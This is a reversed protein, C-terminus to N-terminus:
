LFDVEKDAGGQRWNFADEVVPLNELSVGKSCVKNAGRFVRECKDVVVYVFGHQKHQAFAVRAYSGFDEGLVYVSLQLEVQFPVVALIRWDVDAGVPLAM